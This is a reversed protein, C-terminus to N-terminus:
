WANTLWVVEISDNLEPSLSLSLCFNTRRTEEQEEKVVKGV